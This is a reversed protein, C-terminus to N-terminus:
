VAGGMLELLVPGLVMILMAPLILTGTPIMMKVPAKAIREERKSRYVSRAERADEELGSVMSSGFRLSRIMTEVLRDFLPSAYSQSLRRLAEDRRELGSSWQCQALKFEQALLTEFHEAYLRLSADFSLGSRMGLALVDLMEPLHAELQAARWEVRHKIARQPLLWGIFAGGILLMLALETSFLLGCICGVLSCAVCLRIRMEVFAAPSVLGILGAQAAHKELPKSFRTVMWPRVIGKRLAVSRTLLEMRDIVREFITTAGRYPSAMSSQLEMQILRKQAQQRVSCQYFRFFSLGSAFAFAAAAWPAWLMAGMM